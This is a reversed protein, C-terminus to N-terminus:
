ENSIVAGKKKNKYDQLIALFTVAIVTCSLIRSVEICPIYFLAMGFFVILIRSISKKRYVEKERRSLPKAPYEVPSIMILICCCLTSILFLIFNKQSQFLFIAALYISIYSLRCKTYTSAHWGGSFERIYGFVSMYFVSLIVKHIMLSLILVILTTFGESLILALGYQVIIPDEKLVGRKEMIRTLKEAAELM